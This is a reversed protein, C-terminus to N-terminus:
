KRWIGLSEFNDGEPKSALFKYANMSYVGVM